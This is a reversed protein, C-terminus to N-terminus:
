VLKLGPGLREDPERRTGDQSPTEGLYLYRGGKMDAIRQM